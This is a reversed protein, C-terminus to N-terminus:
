VLSLLDIRLNEELRKIVGVDSIEGKIVKDKLLTLVSLKVSNPLKRIEDCIDKVNNLNYEDVNILYDYNKYANTLGFQKIVREDLPKLCLNKFYGRNNRYMNKLVEFPMREISGSKKWEFFDYTKEDKYTINPILSMVEIEDNDNLPEPKVEIEKEVNEIVVVEQSPEVVATKEVATSTTTTQKKPRGAM